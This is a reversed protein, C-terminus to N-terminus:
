REAESNGAHRRRIKMSLMQQIHGRAGRGFLREVRAQYTGDSFFKVFAKDRFNLVEPSSLHKTPLPLTEYGLQSYGGWTEPLPWNERVAQEYLRSGPYAMACYLNAYEFEQGMAAQLTQAMTAYDDEPLGFIYNAM